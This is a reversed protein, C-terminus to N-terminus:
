VLMMEMMEAVLPWAGGFFVVGFFTNVREFVLEIDMLVGLMTLMNSWWMEKKPVRGANRAGVL